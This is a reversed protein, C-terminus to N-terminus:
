PVRVAMYAWRSGRRVPVWAWRRPVVVTSAAPRVAVAVPRAPPAAAPMAALAPAVAARAAATRVVAPDSRTAALRQAGLQRRLDDRWAETGLTMPNQPGLWKRFVALAWDASREAEALRGARALLGALVAHGKAVELLAPGGGVREAEAIAQRIRKEAEAVQGRRELIGALNTLYGAVRVKGRRAARQAIAVARRADAEARSWDDGRAEAISLVSLCWATTIHSGGLVRNALDYSRRAYPEAEEPRGLANYINALHTMLSALNASDPKWCEELRDLALRTWVEAEILRGCEAAVEGLSAFVWALRVSEAGENAAVLRKIRWLQAEADAYNGAAIDLRAQSDLFPLLAIDDQGFEGVALELAHRLERGAIEFRGQETHLAVLPLTLVAEAWPGHQERIVMALAARSEAEAQDLLGADKLQGALNVREQILEAWPRDLPSVPASGPSREPRPPGGPGGFIPSVPSWVPPPAQEAFPGFTPPRPLEAEAADPTPGAVRPATGGDGPALILTLSALWVQLPEM